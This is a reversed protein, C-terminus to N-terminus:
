AVGERVALIVQGYSVHPEALDQSFIVVHLNM